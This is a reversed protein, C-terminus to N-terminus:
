LTEIRVVKYGADDIAAKIEEDDIEVSLELTATNFTLNVVISTVGILEALVEKVQNVCHGCSMGEIVIIKTM